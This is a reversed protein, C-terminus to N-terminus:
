CGSRLGSSRHAFGAICVSIEEKLLVSVMEAGAKMQSVFSSPSWLEPRQVAPCVDDTWLPVSPAAAHTPSPCFQITNGMRSVCKCTSKEMQPTPM